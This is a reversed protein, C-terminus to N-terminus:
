LPLTEHRLWELARIDNALLPSLKDWIEAHYDDVWKKEEESLFKIDILKKHMPCRKFTTFSVHSFTYPSSM